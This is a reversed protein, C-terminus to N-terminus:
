LRRRSPPDLRTIPKRMGNAATQRLAEKRWCKILERQLDATIRHQPLRKGDISAIEQVGGTSVSLFAGDAAIIQNVPAIREQVTLGRRRAIKILQARTTGPLISASLPPTILTNRRFWFFNSSTSELVCGDRDLLLVDDVGKSEAETKALINLLRSATKHKPLRDDSNLRQSFAGVHVKAPPKAPDLPPANHLGILLTPNQAHLMSYGRPSVGRSLHFRATAENQQNREVLRMLNYWCQRETSPLKFRLAKASRVFRHWHARWQIPQGNLIRLTEFIGDGLQFSRDFVSVKAKAAPIIRGNLCVWPLADLHPAAMDCPNARNIKLRQWM